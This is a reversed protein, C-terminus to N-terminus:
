RLRRRRPPPKAPKLQEVNVEIADTFVEDRDTFEVVLRDHGIFGPAPAYSADRTGVLRDECRARPDGDEYIPKGNAWPPEHGETFSVEGHEPPEVLRIAVARPRCDADLSFYHFLAVPAGQATYLVEGSAKLPGSGIAPTGGFVLDIPGAPAAVLASARTAALAGVIAIWALSRM